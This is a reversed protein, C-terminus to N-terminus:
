RQWNVWGVRRVCRCVRKLFDINFFHNCINGASFTLQGDKNRKEATTISIESYEVVQPTLYPLPLHPLSLHPLPWLTILMNSLIYFFCRVACFASTSYLPFSKLSFVKMSKATKHNNTFNPPTTDMACALLGRFNRWSFRIKVLECFNEREFNERKATTVSTFQSM